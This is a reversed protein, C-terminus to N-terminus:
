AQSAALLPLLLILLLHAAGENLKHPSKGGREPAKEGCIEEILSKPMLGSGVLKSGERVISCLLQKGASDVYTLGSLDVVLDKYIHSSTRWCRKLEEVWPGSLKGELKLMFKEGANCSTIRLM